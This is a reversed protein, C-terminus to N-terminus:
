ALPPAPRPPARPPPRLAPRAARPHLCRAAPPPATARRAGAAASAKSHRRTEWGSGLPAGVTLVVAGQEAPWTSTAASQCAGPATHIPRRLPPRSPPAPEPTPAAGEAVPVQPGREAAAGEWRRPAAAAPRLGAHHQRGQAGHAHPRATGLPRTPAAPPRARAWALDALPRLRSSTSRDGQMCASGARAPLQQERCGRYVQTAFGRPVASPRSGADQALAKCPIEPRCVIGRDTPM